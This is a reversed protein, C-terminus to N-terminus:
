AGERAQAVDPHLCLVTAHHDGVHHGQAFEDLSRMAEAITQQVAPTGDRAAAILREVLALSEEGLAATAVKIRAAVASNSSM